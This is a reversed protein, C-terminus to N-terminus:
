SALTRPAMDRRDMALLPPRRGRAVVDPAHIEDRVLQRVASAKGRQRDDIQEPAFAYRDGNALPKSAV